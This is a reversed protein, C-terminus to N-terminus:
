KDMLIFPLYEKQRNYETKLMKKLNENNRMLMYMAGQSRLLNENKDIGLNVKYLEKISKIFEDHLNYEESEYHKLISSFCFAELFPQRESETKKIDNLGVCVKGVYYGDENIRLISFFKVAINLMNDMSLTDKPMKKDITKSLWETMVANFLSDKKLDSFYTNSRTISDNIELLKQYNENSSFNTMLYDIFILNNNVLDSFCNKKETKIIQKVLYVQQEFSDKQLSIFDQYHNEIDCHQQGFGQISIICTIFITLIIKKM